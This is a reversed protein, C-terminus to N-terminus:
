NREFVAKKTEFLLFISDVFWVRLNDELLSFQEGKQVTSKAAKQICKSYM